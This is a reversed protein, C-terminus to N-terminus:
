GNDKGEHDVAQHNPNGADEQCRLEALNLGCRWRTQFQKDDRCGNHATDADQAPCSGNDAGRQGSDQHARDAYRHDQNVDRWEPQLSNRADQNQDRHEGVDQAAAALRSRYPGLTMTALSFDTGDTGLAGRKRSRMRFRSTTRKMM